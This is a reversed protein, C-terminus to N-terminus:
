LTIYQNDFMRNVYSRCLHLIVTVSCQWYTGSSAGMDGKNFSLTAMIV